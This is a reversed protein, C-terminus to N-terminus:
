RKNGEQLAEQRRDNRMKVDNKVLKYLTAAIPVGLLMGGIGMLGGGVTVAALVWMGPLGISSGVVRPYILNGELQQLVVIFLIFLFAKLPDTTLIMFAGVGAGLYAGVIPILATAGIFAGIMPAYPFRFILMGVTCLSGLIVAETCQGIIFSSFTEDATHYIRRLREVAAPRLYAKLVRKAQARLREKGSLIYVGFIMGIFFNVVAGVVSGVASITSNLVSGIGSRAFALLRSGINEWDIQELANALEEANERTSNEELWAATRELFAPVSRGIVSFTKALEPLVLRGVLTFVAFVLIISLVISVGRRSRNVLRSRSHPFYLREVRVLVINLVYAAALGFLLPTMVSWLGGVWSLVEEVHLIGLILLAALCMYLIVTKDLKRPNM